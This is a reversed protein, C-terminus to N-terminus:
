PNMQPKSLTALQLKPMVTSAAFQQSSDARATGVGPEPEFRPADGFLSTTASRLSEARREESTDPRPGCAGDLRGEPSDRERASCSRCCARAAEETAQDVAGTRPTTALEGTAVENSSDRVALTPRLFLASNEDCENPASLFDGDLGSRRM